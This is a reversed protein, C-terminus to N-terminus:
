LSYCDMYLRIVKRRVAAMDALKSKAATPLAEALRATPTCLNQTIPVWLKGSSTEMTREIVPFLLLALCVRFSINNYIDFQPLAYYKPGPDLIICQSLELYDGYTIGWVKPM